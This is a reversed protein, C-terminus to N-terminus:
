HLARLVPTTGVAESAAEKMWLPWIDLPWDARVFMNRLIHLYQRMQVATLVLEAVEGDPLPLALVVGGPKRHLDLTTLLQPTEDAPKVAAGTELKMLASTQRFTQMLEPDTAPPVPTVADLHELLLKSLARSMRLTLWFAIVGSGSHQARVLIRDEAPVYDLTIKELKM